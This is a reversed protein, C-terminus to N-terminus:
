QGRNDTLEIVNVKFREKFNIKINDEWIHSLRGLVVKGAKKWALNRICKKTKV